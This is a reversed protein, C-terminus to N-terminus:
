RSYDDVGDVIRFCNSFANEGGMLTPMQLGGQLGDVTGVIIPQM